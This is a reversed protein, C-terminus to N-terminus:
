RIFCTPTEIIKLLEAAKETVPFPYGFISHSRPYFWVCGNIITNIPDKDNWLSQYDNLSEDFDKMSMQCQLVCLDTIINDAKESVQDLWTTPLALDYAGIQDLKMIKALEDKNM